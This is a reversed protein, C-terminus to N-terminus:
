YRRTRSSAAPPMGVQATSTIDLVRIQSKADAARADAAAIDAQAQVGRQWKIGTGLGVAFLALAALCWAIINAPLSM